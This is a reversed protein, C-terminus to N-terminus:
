TYLLYASLYLSQMQFLWHPIYKLAPRHPRIHRRTLRRHTHATNQTFGCPFQVLAFSHIYPRAEMGSRQKYGHGVTSNSGLRKNQLPACQADTSTLVIDRSIEIIEFFTNVFFNMQAIM